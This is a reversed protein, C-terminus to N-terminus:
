SSAPREAPTFAKSELPVGNAIVPVRAGSPAWGLIDQAGQRVCLLRHGARCRPPMASGGEPTRQEHFTAMVRTKPRLARVAVRQALPRSRARALVSADRRRWSGASGMLAPFSMGRRFCSWPVGQKLALERIPRGTWPSSPSEIGRARSRAALQVVLQELGGFGL